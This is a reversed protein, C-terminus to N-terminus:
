RDTDRTRSPWRSSARPATRRRSCSWTATTSRRPADGPARRQVTDHRAPARAGASLPAVGDDRGGGVHGRRPLALRAEARARARLRDAAARRALAAADLSEDRRAPRRASRAGGGPAGRAAEGDDSRARPCRIACPMACRASRCTSGSRCSSSARTTRRASTARASRGSAPSRASCRARARIGVRRRAAGHRRPPRRRERERHPSPRGPSASRSRCDDPAARARRDRRIGADTTAQERVRELAREFGALREVVSCWSAIEKYSQVFLSLSDQVQNFAGITQMLGGLALEGRFYRPAAVVSPFIWAAQGYGATFYTLRKQRRMIGWWNTVVAQFREHFGRLEDAEGRYLAVGESNERFRVLSFRFDAEARQRDFNLRVLPRGIWDTLWTGLTAYLLAVWVM